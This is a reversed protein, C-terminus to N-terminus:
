DDLLESAAQPTIDVVNATILIDARRDLYKPPLNIMVLRAENELARMPLGALPIVELSAGAVLMLDCSEAQRVAEKHGALPASM